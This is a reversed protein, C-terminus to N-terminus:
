VAYRRLLCKELSELRGLECRPHEERRVPFLAKLEESVDTRVLFVYRLKGSSLM